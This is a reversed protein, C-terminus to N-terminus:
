MAIVSRAMGSHDKRMDCARVENDHAVDRPALGERERGAQFECAGSARFWAAQYHAACLGRVVQKIGRLRRPPRVM